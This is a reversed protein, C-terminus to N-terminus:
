VPRVMVIDRQPDRGLPFVHEGVAVFGFKKYFSIARPNHEWVGLWIKDSGRKKFEELCVSMLDHAVGQGHWASSVYLRQIEGPNKASVSEPAPGWRLQAFGILHADMESVFTHMSTSSIEKAQLAESYSAQCHVDMNEPTNMAAFTERFTSEALVALEKADRLEATRIILM